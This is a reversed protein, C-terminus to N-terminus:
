YLSKDKAASEADFSRYNCTLEEHAEIARLAVTHIPGTDDCNPSESHNMYRANDGCLVHILSKDDIYCFARSRGQYPEPFLVLETPTIEWDVAPNFEWLLTGAPLPFPTYVGTGHVKSPALYTPILFM